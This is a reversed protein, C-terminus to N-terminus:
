HAWRFAPLSHARTQRRLAQRDRLVTSLVLGLAKGCCGGGTQESEVIAEEPCEAWAAAFGDLWARQAEMDNLPPDDAPRANAQFVAWVAGFWDCDVADQCSATLTM